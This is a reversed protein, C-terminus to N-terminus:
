EGALHREAASALAAFRGSSLERWRAAARARDGLLEAVLAELHVREEPHVYALAGRAAGGDDLRVAERLLARAAELEGRSDALAALAYWPEPRAPDLSRATELCAQAASLYGESAHQDGLNVLAAQQSRVDGRSVVEDLLRRAAEGHGELAYAVALDNLPGLREPDASLTAEYSSRAGALDGARLREAGSAGPEALVSALPSADDPPRVDPGGCAVLAATAVLAIHAPFRV